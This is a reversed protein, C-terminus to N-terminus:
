ASGSMKIDLFVLGGTVIYLIGSFTTLGFSYGYKVPLNSGTKYHDLETGYIIVAIFVLVGAGIGTAAGVLRILNLQKVFLFLVILVTCAIGVLMGLTCFARTAKLKGDILDDSLDGDTLAHMKWLGYHFPHDFGPIDITIWFTTGFGVVFFLFALCSVVLAIKLFKSTDFLGM